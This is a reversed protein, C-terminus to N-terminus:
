SIQPELQNHRNLLLAGTAILAAVGLVEAGIILKENRSLQFQSQEPQGSSTEVIEPHIMPGKLRSARVFIAGSKDLDIWNFAVEASGNVRYPISLGSRRMVRRLSAREEKNM